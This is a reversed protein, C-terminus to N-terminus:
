VTKLKGLEAIDFHEVGGIWYSTLKATIATVPILRIGAMKPKGKSANVINAVTGPSCGFHTALEARSSGDKFAARMDKKQADTLVTRTRKGAM